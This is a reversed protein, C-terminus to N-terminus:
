GVNHISISRSYINKPFGYRSSPIVIDPTAVSSIVWEYCITIYM